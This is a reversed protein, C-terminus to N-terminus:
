ILKNERAALGLASNWYNMTLYDQKNEMSDIHSSRRQLRRYAMSVATGIDGQTAGTRRYILYRAYLCFVDGPDGEAPLEERVLNQIRNRLDEGKEPTFPLCSQAMLSYAAILRDAPNNQPLILRECQSFGSRWDPQETFLFDNDNAHVSLFKEGLGAAEEYNGLLYAAEINFLRGDGSSLDPQEVSKKQKKRAGAMLYIGARYTWAALTMDACSPVKGELSAFTELAEKYYGNEFYFRGLLFRSSLAWGAWGLEEAIKGTKIILKQAQPLNGYLFNSAATFYLAKVLEDANGTKEALDIAFSGYEVADDIRQKFLNVLSFYRYSPIGGDKLSQNTLMLDRVTESAAVADRCGLRYAGLNSQIQAIFGPYIAASHAPITGSFIKSIEKQGCYVLAKQTHFIWDLIKVNDKKIFRGIQGGAFIEDLGSSTGNNIDGRLVRLILPDEIAGGLEELIKLLNFCPRIRGEKEWALLRKWAMTKIRACKEGLIKEATEFFDPFCPRPDPLSDIAGNALLLKLGKDLIGPNLGEEEFVGPILAPPFFRRLILFAYMIEWLEASLGPIENGSAPFDRGSFKLVRPFFNKWNRAAEGEGSNYAMFFLSNNCEAAANLFIDIQTKDALFPDEIIVMAPCHHSDALVKYSNFLVVLFRKEAETIYPSAQDRLRERFLLEGLSDLEDTNIKPSSGLRARLAPTLADCFYRAGCGGAEFRFILPPIDKMVSVCYHYAGDRIGTVPGLLLTHEQKGTELVRIVKDRYPFFRNGSEDFPKFRILEAYGRFPKEFEVYPQLSDRVTQGCWIGTHSSAAGASLMRCLREAEHEPINQSLVLAHGSLESGAAELANQITGTLILMDLWFGTRECDFSANLYRRNDSLRGSATFIAGTVAEDLRTVLDPRTRRLQSRFRLFFLMQVM